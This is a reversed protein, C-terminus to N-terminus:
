IDHLYEFRLLVKSDDAQPSCMRCRHLPRQAGKVRIIWQVRNHNVIWGDTWLRQYIVRRGWRVNHRDPV